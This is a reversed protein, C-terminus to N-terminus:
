QELVLFYVRVHRKVAWFTGMSRQRPDVSCENLQISKRSQTKLGIVGSFDVPLKINLAALDRLLWKLLCKAISFRTFDKLPRLPCM